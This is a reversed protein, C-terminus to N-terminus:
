TYMSMREYIYVYMIVCVRIHKYMTNSIVYIGDYLTYIYDCMCVYMCVYQLDNCVMALPFGSKKRPIDVLNALIINQPTSTM